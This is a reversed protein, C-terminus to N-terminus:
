IVFIQKTTKTLKQTSLKRKKSEKVRIMVPRLRSLGTKSMINNVSQRNMIM